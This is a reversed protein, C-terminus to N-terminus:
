LHVPPKRLPMTYSVYSRLPKTPASLMMTLSTICQVSPIKMRYIIDYDFCALEMRWRQIKDNNKWQTSVSHQNTILIFHRGALYHRWHDLSEVTAAAEKEVAVHGIEPGCLTRAFFAVLRGRQTITGPLAHDSVDTEVTFPVDKDISTVVADLIEQKLNEFARTAQQSLPFSVSNTFQRIKDSFCHIWQSYHSFFGRARNLAVQDTRLPLEKLPRFQEADPRLKGNSMTYGLLDTSTKSTISKM